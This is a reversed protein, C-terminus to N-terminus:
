ERGCWVERIQTAFGEEGVKTRQEQKGVSFKEKRGIILYVNIYNQM